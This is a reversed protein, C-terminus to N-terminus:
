FIDQRPEELESRYAEFPKFASDGKFNDMWPGWSAKKEQKLLLEIANRIAANKTIGKSRIYSESRNKLNDPLYVSINM